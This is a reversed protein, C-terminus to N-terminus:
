SQRHATPSGTVLRIAHPLIELISQLCDRVAGPSGPLNVILTEGCIGATARSLAAYPTKPLSAARMMEGIGPVLRTCVDQTAEPTVDRPAVGTGGTTVILSAGQRSLRLLEGSIATREDATVVRGLVEAGAAELISVAAPGSDDSNAGDSISDSATLVAARIGSLDEGTL